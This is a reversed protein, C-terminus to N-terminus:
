VTLFALSLMHTLKRISPENPLLHMKEKAIPCQSTDNEGNVPPRLCNPHSVSPGIEDCDKNSHLRASEARMHEQVTCQASVVASAPELDANEHAHPFTKSEKSVIDVHSHPSYGQQDLAPLGVTPVGRQGEAIDDNRDKPQIPIASQAAPLAFGVMPVGHQNSNDDSALENQLPPSIHTNDPPCGVVPVGHQNGAGNHAPSTHAPIDNQRLSECSPPVEIHPDAQKCQLAEPPDTPVFDNRLTKKPLNSFNYRRASIGLTNKPKSKPQKPRHPRKNFQHTDPAIAKYQPPQFAYPQHDHRRFIFGWVLSTAKLQEIPIWTHGRLNDYLLVQGKNCREIILFHHSSKGQVIIIGTVIFAQSVPNTSATPVNFSQGLFYLAKTAPPLQEIPSTIKLAFILCGEIEEYNLQDENHCDGAHSFGVDDRDLALRPTRGAIMQALDIADNELNVILM